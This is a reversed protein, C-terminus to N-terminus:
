GRSYSVGGRVKGQTLAAPICQKQIETPSSFGLKALGKLLLPHLGFEEWASVDVERTGAEGESRRREEEIEEEEGEKELSDDGGTELMKRKKKQVKGESESGASKNTSEGLQSVTGESQKALAKKGSKGETQQVGGASRGETEEELDADGPAAVAGTELGERKRRARERKNLKKGSPASPEVEVKTEVGTMGNDLGSEGGPVEGADAEVEAREELEEAGGEEATEETEIKLGRFLGPDLKSGGGARQQALRERRKEKKRKKIESSTMKKAKPKPVKESKVAATGSEAGNERVLASGSGSVPKGAKGEATVKKENRKGTLVTAEVTREPGVEGAKGGVKVKAKAAITAKGAGESVLEGGAAAVDVKPGKKKKAAKEPVAGKAGVDSELAEDAKRKKGGKTAGKKAGGVVKDFVEGDIEELGMFGATCLPTQLFPSFLIEPVALYSVQTRLNILLKRLCM